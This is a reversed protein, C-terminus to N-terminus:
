RSWHPAAQVIVEETLTREIGFLRAVPGCLEAVIRPWGTTLMSVPWTGTAVRHDSRSSRADFWHSDPNYVYRGSLGHWECRFAVATATDFREALGRAHRVFEALSRMMLNPSLWTGPTRNFQKNWAPQDEWYERILTAKGDAAVRWMDFGDTKPEPDRVLACELFDKEGQGSAIDTHFFPAIEPRTFVYFMSWGTRVLDRVEANVRRLVDILENPDVERRDSREIAYSLQWHAKGLEPPPEKAETVDKLFVAHAADHWTKLADTLDPPASSGGRLAADIAGLIAAREHMACRRIIPAWEAAATIAASEPGAKRTYYAGQTIGKSKGNVIPGGAKACVPVAGHPPVVIVPHENGVTSKVVFVDCQFPPDLYKKVIGAVVDRDCPVKPFPNPGAYGMADDTGLVITGGGHNALAAVHRALDARTENDALDLWAKYEVDLTENPNDLLEQLEDTRGSRAM